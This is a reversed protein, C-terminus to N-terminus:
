AGAGVPVPEAKQGARERWEVLGAEVLREVIREYLREADVWEELQDPKVALLNDNAIWDRGPRHRRHSGPLALLLTIACDQAEDLAWKVQYLDAKSQDPLAVLEGVKAEVERQRERVSTLVREWQQPDKPSDAELREEELRRTEQSAEALPVPEELLEEVPVGYGKAIKALTPYHPEQGGRELSSLTHRTIGIRESAETLTLGERARLIRLREALSGQMMYSINRKTGTIGHREIYWGM